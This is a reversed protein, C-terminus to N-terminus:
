IDVAKFRQNNEMSVKKLRRLGKKFVALSDMALYILQTLIFYSRDFGAIYQVIEGNFGRKFEYTGYNPSSPDDFHPIGLFDYIKQNTDMAYSIMKWQMLYTAKLNRKINSSAGYAYSVRHGFITMM